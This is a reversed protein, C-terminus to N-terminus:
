RGDTEHKLWFKIRGPSWEVGTMNVFIFKLGRGNTSLDSERFEATMEPPPAFTGEDVIEAEAKEATIHFKIEVKKSSKETKEAALIRDLIENDEANEKFVELNGHVVANTVAEYMATRFKNIEEEPWGYIQLQEEAIQVADEITQRKSEFSFEGEFAKEKNEFSQGEFSM